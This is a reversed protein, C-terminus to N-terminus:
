PAATERRDMCSTPAAQRAGRGPPARDGRGPGAAAREYMRCRPSRRRAFKPASGPPSDRRSRWTPPSAPRLARPRWCTSRWSSSPGPGRRGNPSSVVREVPLEHRVYASGAPRTRPRRSKGALSPRPAPPCRRKPASGPGLNPGALAKSWPAAPEAPTSSAKPASPTQAPRGRSEPPPSARPTAARRLGTGSRRDVCRGDIHTM